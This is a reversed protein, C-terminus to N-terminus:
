IIQALSVLFISDEGAPGSHKDLRMLFGVTGKHTQWAVRITLSVMDHGHSWTM